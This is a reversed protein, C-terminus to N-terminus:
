TVPDRQATVWDCIRELEADVGSLAEEMYVFAHDAGQVVSLTTPVSETALAQTMALTQGLLSDEDGCSLYTSPFRALNSSLVPSVLPSDHLALYNPGLYARNFAVEISGGNSGPDRMVLHFDFIGYILLAAAFAVPMGALEGEDLTRDGAGLLYVITAAALNAGSSEGGIVLAGTRGGYKSGHEVSWRAAYICDELAWPFPLEPALGYDPVIVVNGAAALRTTVRRTGKAAGSCWAGGHLYLVTPYPGPGHPVCIEATLEISNRTRLLVGEHIAALSPLNANLHSRDFFSRSAVVDDVSRRAPATVPAGLLLSMWGSNDPHPM